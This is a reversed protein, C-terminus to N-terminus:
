EVGMTKLLETVRAEEHTPPACYKLPVCVYAIAMGDTSAPYPLGSGEAPDHLTVIKGPRYTALATRLLRLTDPAGPKGIILAHPPTNIHYALALAYASAFHGSEEASGAYAKLTREARERYEDEYTIYYLRDLLMAAVANAAPTPTDEFPKRVFNRHASATDFFGGHENDWFNELCYRMIDEAADLYFRYGSVEYADLCAMSVQINDDLFGPIRAEGQYYTHFVGKGKRYSNALLFDLVKLADDKITAEKIDDGGLFKYAELYASVMMGNLSGYKSRDVFPTPSANRSELLKKRGDSILLFVEKVPIDLENAVDEPTAAVRPVNKAANHRMEGQAEIGYYQKIVKAELPTLVADVEEPTWTYYDGDDGRGVDADQSAYFGGFRSDSAERNIYDLVEEVVEKYLVTGTAAYAHAFNRLMGSNVYSMKEFHPVHWERDMTYRFFGGRIHDRIGGEAMADLTKLTLALLEADNEVFARSLAFEVGAESPFKAGAGFGGFDRDFDETIRRAIANLLESSLEGTKLGADKQALLHQHYQETQALLEDKHERYLKAVRPLLSKLGERGLKDEAPFYTGGFFVKGDPTLFATLPWGGFGTLNSVATQYWRDIDPRADMDVKIAVFYRNILEAVEPNEYTEEDMVHCWHCWIAGIDLLIPRDLMKALAFAEEGYEHWDIAQFRASRLYPSASRALRNERQQNQQLHAARNRQEEACLPTIGGWTSLIGTSLLILLFLSM